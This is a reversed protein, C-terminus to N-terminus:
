RGIRERKALVTADGCLVRHEGCIWLDGPRSIPDVPPQPGEDADDVPELETALLRDLEADDFGLLDLDFADEKLARWNPRWCRTMGARM